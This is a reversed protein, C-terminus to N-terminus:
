EIIQQSGTKAKKVIRVATEVTNGRTISFSNSFEIGTTVTGLLKKLFM